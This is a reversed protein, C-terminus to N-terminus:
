VPLARSPLSPQSEPLIGTDLSNDNKKTATSSHGGQVSRGRVLALATDGPSHRHGHLLIIAPTTTLNWFLDIHQSTGDKTDSPEQHPRTEPPICTVMFIDNKNSPLM